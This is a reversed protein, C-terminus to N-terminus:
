SDDSRYDISRTSALAGVEGKFLIKAIVFMVCVVIADVLAANLM